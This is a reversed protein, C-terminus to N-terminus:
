DFKPMLKLIEVVKYNMFKVLILYLIDNAYRVFTCSIRKLMYKKNRFIKSKFILSFEDSM